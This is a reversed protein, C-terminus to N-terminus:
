GDANALILRQSGATTEQCESGPTLFGESGEEGKLGPSPSGLRTPM